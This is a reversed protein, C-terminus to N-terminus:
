FISMITGPQWELKLYDQPDTSIIRTIKYQGGSLPQTLLRVRGQLIEVENPSNQALDTETEFDFISEIPIVTYLIM